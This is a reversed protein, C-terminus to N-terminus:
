IQLICYNIHTSVPKFRFLRKLTDDKLYNSTPRSISLRGNKANRILNLVDKFHIESLTQFEKYIDYIQHSDTLRELRSLNQISSHEEFLKLNSFLYNVRKAKKALNLNM